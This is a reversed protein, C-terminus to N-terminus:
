AMAHIDYGADNRDRESSRTVLFGDWGLRAGHSDALRVSEVDCARLSLRVEYEVTVGTMLTLLERLALEAPGGPLFRHFTDRAMPGLTVRMRLDRQWVREGVVAGSGLPAGGVEGLQTQNDLPLMFWRGAFQELDVSVDFYQALVQQIMPASTVRQQLVGAYFALSDDAVGGEDARLRDRLASHGLGAVSLVLPLFQHRRDSEFRIELRHKRWAQYFLVVARHLFIDLFAPGASEKNQLQRQAFLETYFAPLSGNGGLLSIFAPTLEIQKVGRSPRTQRATFDKLEGSVSAAHDDAEAAVVHLVAIESAPFSLSVSNRFRLRDELVEGAQLNEQQVFWRELLRVAQFFGFRHPEEIVREIVGIPPPRQPTSM